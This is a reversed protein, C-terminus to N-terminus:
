VGAPHTGVRVPENRRYRRLIEMREDQPMLIAFPSNQRLRKGEESRDELTLFVRDIGSILIERWERLCDKLSDSYNPDALRLDMQELVLSLKAPDARLIRVIVQHMEYSREDIIQHSSM